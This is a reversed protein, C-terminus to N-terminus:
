TRGVYFFRSTERGNELIIKELFSTKPEIWINEKEMEGKNTICRYVVYEELTELHRAITLVECLKGTYHIYLGIKVDSMEFLLDTKM